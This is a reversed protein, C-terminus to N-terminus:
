DEDVRKWIYGPGPDSPEAPPTLPTPPRDPSLSAVQTGLSTWGSVPGSPPIPAPAVAAPTSLVTAPLPAASGATVCPQPHLVLWTGDWVQAQALTEDPRLFRGPPHAEAVYDLLQGTADHEWGLAQALTATLQCIPVDTALEIDRVRAEGVRKITVIVHEM